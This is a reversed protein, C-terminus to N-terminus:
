KIPWFIETFHRAAREDVPSLNWAICFKKEEDSRGPRSQPGGLICSFNKRLRLDAPANLKGSMVTM